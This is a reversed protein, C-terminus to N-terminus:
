FSGFKLAPHHFGSTQFDSRKPKLIELSKRGDEATASNTRNTDTFDSFFLWFFRVVEYSHYALINM